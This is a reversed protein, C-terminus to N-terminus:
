PLSLTIGGLDGERARRRVFEPYRRRLFLGGIKCGDGLRFKGELCGFPQCAIPSERIALPHDLNRTATRVNNFVGLRVRRRRRRLAGRYIVVYM